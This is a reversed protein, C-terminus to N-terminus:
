NKNELVKKLEFTAIERFRLEDVIREMREIQPQIKNLAETDGVEERIEIYGKMIALPNRLRDALEEFQRLNELITRYAIEREREIKLAKFRIAIDKAISEVVKLEEETFPVRRKIVMLSPFDEDQIPLFTLYSDDFKQQSVSDVKLCKVDFDKMNPPVYLPICDKGVYVGCEANLMELLERVRLLILYESKENILVDKIEGSIRLLNNMRRLMEEDEKLKTIDAINVLVAPEKKYKIRRALVKVWKERGDKTIVKVEYSEPVEEGRERARYRQKTLERFENSVIDYPHELANIEELTYGLIEATKQNAYVIKDKQVIFIGTHSSEVLNRYVEEREELKKEVKKKETVDKFSMLIFRKGKYDLPVGVVEAYCKRRDKKLLRTVGTFTEGSLIRSETERVKEHFREEFLISSNKNILEEKSYGTIKEATRNAYTIKGNDLILYGSVSSDLIKEFFEEREQIEKELRVSETLDKSVVIGFNKGAIFRGSVDLVFEKGGIIAKIRDRVISGTELASKFLKLAKEADDPHVFTFASKGIVEEESLNSIMFFNKNASILRGDKDIIGIFDPFAEFITKYMERSEELEKLIKKSETIERLEMVAITPERGEEIVSIVVDVWRLKGTKDPIQVELRSYKEKSELYRHYIEVANERYREPILDFVSRGILEQPSYGFFRVSPNAYVIRAERNAIIVADLIREVVAKYDIHM